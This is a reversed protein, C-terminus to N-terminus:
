VCPWGEAHAKLAFLRLGVLCLELGIFICQFEKGLGLITRFRKTCDFEGAKAMQAARVGLGDGSALSM